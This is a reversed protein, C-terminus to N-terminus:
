KLAAQRDTQRDTQGGVEPRMNEQMHAPVVLTLGDVQLGLVVSLDATDDARHPGILHTM